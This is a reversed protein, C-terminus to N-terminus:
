RAAQRAEEIAERIRGFPEALDFSEDLEALWEAILRRDEDAREPLALRNGGHQFIALRPGGHAADLRFTKAAEAAAPSDGEGQPLAQTESPLVLVLPASVHQRAAM